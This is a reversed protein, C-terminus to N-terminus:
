PKRVEANIPSFLPMQHSLTRPEDTVVSTHLILFVVFLGDFVDLAGGSGPLANFLLAGSLPALV